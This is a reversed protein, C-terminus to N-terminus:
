SQGVVRAQCVRQLVEQVQGLIYVPPVKERNNPFYPQFLNLFPIYLIIKKNPVANIVFRM